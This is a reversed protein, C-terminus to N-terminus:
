EFDVAMADRISGSRGLKRMAEGNRNAGAAPQGPKQLVVPPAKAAKAKAEAKIKDAALGKRAWYALKFLRHDSAQSLEEATFGLEQATESVEGWFKQRGQATATEPFAEILMRNQEELDAKKDAASMADTIQKPQSGLDILKQVQAFAADYQAKQRTYASPDRLALATDPEAPLMQALHDIFAETINAIRSADAEVAKRQNAIEQTKRSYDSQRMSGEILESITKESGDSLQVKADHQAYATEQEPASEPEDPEEEGAGEGEDTPQEEGEPSDQDDEPDWYDLGEGTDNDSPEVNDTGAGAPTDTEDTMTQGKPM